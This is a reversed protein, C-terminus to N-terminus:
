VRVGSQVGRSTAWDWEGGDYDDTPDSADIAEDVADYCARYSDIVDGLADCADQSDFCLDGELQDGLLTLKDADTLAAIAARAAELKTPTTM